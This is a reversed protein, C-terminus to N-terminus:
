RYRDIQAKYIMNHDNNFRQYNESWAQDAM